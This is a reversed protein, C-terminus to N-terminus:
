RASPSCSLPPRPWLGGGGPLRPSEDGGRAPRSVSPADDAHEALTDRVLAELVDM